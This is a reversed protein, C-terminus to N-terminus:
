KPTDLLHPYKEKVQKELEPDLKARYLTKVKSLQKITLNAAEQLNVEILNAGKLKARNFNARYLNARIFKVNELNAEEFDAGQFNAEKIFPYLDKSFFALAGQLNADKLHANQLNIGTLDAGQLDAFNLNANKLNSKWISAGQLSVGKLFANKLYCNIIDIKTIGNKNLRKINGVIRFKAEESNWGRFDDIEEQWRKINRKKERRSEVLTHLAFIFTGIILIDFLTGHAEVLVDRIFEKNYASDVKTVTLRFVVLAAILFVMSSIFVPSILIKEIIEKSKKWSFIKKRM